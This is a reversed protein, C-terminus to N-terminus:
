IRKRSLTIKRLTDWHNTSVNSAKIVYDTGDFVVITSYKIQYKEILVDNIAKIKKDVNLDSGVINMFDQLVNLNTIRNGQMKFAQIRKYLSLNYIILVSIALVLIIIVIIM